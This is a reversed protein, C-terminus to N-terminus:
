AELVPDFGALPVQASMRAGTVLHPIEADCNLPFSLPASPAAASCLPRGRNIEDLERRANRGTKPYMGITHTLDTPLEGVAAVAMPPARFKAGAKATLLRQSPHGEDRPCRLNGVVGCDIELTRETKPFAPIHYALVAEPVEHLIRAAAPIDHELALNRVIERGPVSADTNVEAQFVEGSQRIASFNWGELMVAGIFGLEGDCLASSVLLPHSGNVCLDGICPSMVKMLLGGPDSAVVRQDDNAIHVRRLQCLRPHRFGDEIGTPGREAMHQTVLSGSPLRHIDLSVLSVTGLRARAATRDGSATRFTHTRKSYPAPFAAVAPRGMVPVHVRSAVNEAGPQLMLRGHPSDGGLSALM